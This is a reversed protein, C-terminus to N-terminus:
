RDHKNESILKKFLLEVETLHLNEGEKILEVNIGDVMEETSSAGLEVFDQNILHQLVLELLLRFSADILKFDRSSVDNPNKRGHFLNCRVRYIVKIVDELNDNTISVKRQNQSNEVPCLSKLEKFYKNFDSKKNVKKFIDNWYKDEYFRKILTLDDFSEKGKRIVSNFSDM